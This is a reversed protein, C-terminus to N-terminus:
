QNVASFSRLCKGRNNEGLRFRKFYCRGPARSRKNGSIWQELFCFVTCSTLLQRNRM